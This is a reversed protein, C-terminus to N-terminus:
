WDETAKLYCDKNTFVHLGARLAARDLAERIAITEGFETQNADHTYNIEDCIAQLLELNTM